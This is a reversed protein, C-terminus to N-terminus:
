PHLPEFLIPRVVHCRIRALADVLQQYQRGDKFLGLIAGGSGAFKASAGTARAVEVMRLNEPAIPMIRTRLDFNENMVAGLEDWDGAMLAARGRDTLTRYQQMTSLVTPDGQNFLARLNRHPIDSVEAREPDYALYLPPLKEPKLPVYDGYGRSELLKRDFDMYVIGEFTQIVRDQLGASIGLEDKEVSLVLSPLLHLPIDVEYFKMLARLTAVIIASSGSLGVLRPIDTDFSVTFNRHRLEIDNNWCHDTFRKIAAKILRMGGYYGHLTVDRLFGQVSDFRGLDGHGPVIEFHPSEWLSVTAKFNRVVCSITKGFYGDSPNGVIGARAYAHATIIM